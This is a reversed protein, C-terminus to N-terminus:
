FTLNAFLRFYVFEFGNVAINIKGAFPIHERNEEVCHLPM